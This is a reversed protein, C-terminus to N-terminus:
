MELSTTRSTNLPNSTSLGGQVRGRSCLCGACWVEGPIFPSKVKRDQSHCPVLLPLSGLDVLGVAYTGFRRKLFLCQISHVPHKNVPKHLLQLVDFGRSSEQVM